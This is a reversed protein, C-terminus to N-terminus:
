ESSASPTKDNSKMSGFLYGGIGGLIGIAATLQQDTQAMIVLIITGFIIFILGSANIIHQGSNIAKKELFYLIAVLSSFALICLAIITIVKYMERQMQFKHAMQTNSDNVQIPTDAPKATAVSSFDGFAEIGLAADDAALCSSISLTWLMLLFLIKM